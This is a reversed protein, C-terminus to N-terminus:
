KPWRVMKEIKSGIKDWFWGFIVNKVFFLSQGWNYGNKPSVRSLKVTNYGNIQIKPWKQSNKAIKIMKPGRAMQSLFVPKKFKKEIKLCFILFRLNVMQQFAFFVTNYGCKLDGSLTWIASWNLVYPRVNWNMQCCFCVRM